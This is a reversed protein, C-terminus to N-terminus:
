ETGSRSRVESVENEENARRLTLRERRMWSCEAVRFALLKRLCLCAEEPSPWPEPRPQLSREVGASAPGAGGGNRNFRSLESLLFSGPAARRIARWAREDSKWCARGLMPLLLSVSAHGSQARVACACAM